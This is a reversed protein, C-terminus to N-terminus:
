LSIGGPMCWITGSVSLMVTIMYVLEDCVALFNIQVYMVHFLLVRINVMFNRNLIVIIALIM